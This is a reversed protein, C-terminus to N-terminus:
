GVLMFNLHHYLNWVHITLEYLPTGSKVLMVHEKQHPQALIFSM